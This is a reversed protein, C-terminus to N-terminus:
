AAMESPAITYSTLVYYSGQASQQEKFSAELLRTGTRLDPCTGNCYAYFQRGATDAVTLMQYVSQGSQCPKVDLVEYRWTTPFDTVNGGTSSDQISGGSSQALPTQAAPVRAGQTLAAVAKEYASALKKHEGAKIVATNGKLECDVWVGEMGYLYRGIGWHVAARKFSDSLGGKVAEIDSQEAGDWKTVWEGREECLISLGCLQSKGQWESFCNQWHFPGVTEDLRRQIARSDIYPVALGRTKDKTSHQLRWDVEHAAFPKSLESIIESEIKM